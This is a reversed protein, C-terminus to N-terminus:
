KMKKGVMIGKSKLLYVMFVSFFVVVAVSLIVIMSVFAATSMTVTSSSSSSKLEKAQSFVTNLNAIISDANTVPLDQSLDWVIVAGIKNAVIYNAKATASQANDYTWVNTGNTGSYTQYCYYAQAVSDYQQTYGNGLKPQINKWAAVGSQAYLEPLDLSPAADNTPNGTASNPNIGFIAPATSSSTTLTAWGRGYCAAGIGTKQAPCKLAMLNKFAENVSFGPQRGYKGDLPQATNPYLATQHGGNSFAGYFDYTMLNVYDLYAISKELRPIVDPNPIFAGTLLYSPNVAHLSQRILNMMTGMNPGDNEVSFSNYGPGATGPSEWDIDIGDFGYRSVTAACSDAFVQASYGDQNGAIKSFIWSLSWGGVSLLVKLGPNNAKLTQLAGISGGPSRSNLYAQNFTNDGGLSATTDFFCLQGLTHSANNQLNATNRVLTPDGMPAGTAESFHTVLYAWDTDSPYPYLFAYVVGTIKSVPIDAVHYNRSYVGWEPFYGFIERGKIPM